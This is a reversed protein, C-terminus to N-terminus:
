EGNGGQNMRLEHKMFLNDLVQEIFKEFFAHHEDYLQNRQEDSQNEASLLLTQGYLCSVLEDLWGDSLHRELTSLRKILPNLSNLFVTVKRANMANVYEAYLAKLGRFGSPVPNVTASIDEGGEVIAMSLRPPTFSRTEVHVDTCGRRRLITTVAREVCLFDAAEEDPLKQYIRQDDTGLEEFRCEEHRRCYEFIVETDLSGSDLHIVIFGKPTYVEAAHLEGSGSRLGLISTRGERDKPQQELITGLPMIGHNTWFPLLEVIANFLDPERLVMNKLRYNHYTAITRLKPPNKQGLHLLHAIIIKGLTKQAHRYPENRMLSERSATPMLYDFEVMGGAFSRAWDPLLGAADEGIRMRRLYVELRGSYHFNKQMDANSIYLVGRMGPAEVPILSLPEEGFRQQVFTSMELQRSHQWGPSHYPANRQNIPGNQNLYISYPLFDCWKKIARILYEDSAFEAHEQDLWVDVTTGVQPYPCSELTYDGNPHMKLISGEETGFARSSIDVSAGVFLASFFGVGFRGILNLEMPDCDKSTGGLCALNKKLEDPQMGRGNDSFRIRHQKVDLEVDIRGTHEPQIALRECIADTANQLLEKVFPPESYTSSKFIDLIQPLNVSVQHKTRSM